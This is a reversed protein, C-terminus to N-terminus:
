YAIAPFWSRIHGRFRRGLKESYILGLAEMKKLREQPDEADSRPGYTCNRFVREWIQTTTLGPADFVAHLYVQERSATAVRM